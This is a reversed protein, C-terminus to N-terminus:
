PNTKAKENLSLLINQEIEDRSLEDVFSFYKRAKEPILEIQGKIIIWKQVGILFIRKRLLYISDYFEDTLLKADLFAIFYPLAILDTNDRAIIYNLKYKSCIKEIDSRIQEDNIYLCITNKGKGFGM